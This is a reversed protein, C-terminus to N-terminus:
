VKSENLVTISNGDQTYGTSTLTITATDPTPIITFTYYQNTDDGESGGGGEEPDDDGTNGLDGVTYPLIESPDSHEFKNIDSSIARAYLEYTNPEALADIENLNFEVETETGTVNITKLLTDEAVGKLYLNYSNANKDLNTCRFYTIAM